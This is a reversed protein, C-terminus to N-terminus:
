FDLKKPNEERVTKILNKVNEEQLLDKNWNVEM